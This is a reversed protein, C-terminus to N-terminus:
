TGKIQTTSGGPSTKSFLSRVPVNNGSNGSSLNTSGDIGVNTGQNATIYYTVSTAADARCTVAFAYAAILAFAAVYRCLNGTGAFHKNIAGGIAPIRTNELRSM